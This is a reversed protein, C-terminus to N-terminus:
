DVEIEVKPLEIAGMQIPERSRVDYYGDHQEPHAMYLEHRLVSWLDCANRCDDSSYCNNTDYAIRGVAKLIEELTHRRQIYLEFLLDNKPNTKDYKFTDNALGDALVDFQNMRCRFYEELAQIMIQLQEEKLEITVKMGKQEGM